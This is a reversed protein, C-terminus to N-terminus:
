DRTLDESLVDDYDNDGGIKHEEKAWGIFDTDRCRPSCFPRERSTESWTVEIGCSPCKVTLPKSM